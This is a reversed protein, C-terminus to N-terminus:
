IILYNLIINDKNFLIIHPIIIEFKSIGFDENLNISFLPGSLLYYFM